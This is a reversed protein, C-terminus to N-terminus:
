CKVLELKTKPESGNPPSLVLKLLYESLMELAEEDKIFVTSAAPHSLEETSFDHSEWENAFEKIYNPVNEHLFKVKRKGCFLCEQSNVLHASEMAGGRTPVVSFVLGTLPIRQWLHRGLLCRLM